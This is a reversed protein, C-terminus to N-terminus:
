DFNRCSQLSRVQVQLLSPLLRILLPLLLPLAVGYEVSIAHSVLHIAFAMRAVRPDKMDLSGAEQANALVAAM